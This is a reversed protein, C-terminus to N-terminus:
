RNQDARENATLPNKKNRTEYDRVAAGLSIVERWRQAIGDAACLDANCAKAVFSNEM